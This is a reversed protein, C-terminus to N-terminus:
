KLEAAREVEKGDVTLREAGFDAIIETGDEYNTAFVNESLERYDTMELTQLHGLKGFILDYEAKMAGIVEDLAPYITRRKSWEARPHSAFLVKSMVDKWTYGHGELMTLGHMTLQWIPVQKDCMQSIPWEPHTNLANSGYWINTICDVPICSYLFGWEAGSSGFVERAVDLMRVVGKEHTSRPGGNKPHYNVELPNGVADLYIHGRCGMSQMKRLEGELRDYGLALGNQRYSIGGAWQGCVLPEGHIDIITTDYDFDPSAQYADIYNDHVSMHYGLLNGYAMLDRFQREGGVREDPPVRTPLLGDHGRSNWGVAETVIKDIGADHLKKLCEKGESFTMGVHFQGEFRTDGPKYDAPYPFLKHKQLGYFMKVMYANILYDAQPSEQARQKLTKKGLDEIMHRRMRKAAFVYPTQDEPITSYRIERLGFDVPDPWRHRLVFGLAVEGSGAGDTAAHCETDAACQVPIAVLGGDPSSVACFPLQPLLEWREQQGYIMFRDSLKPKDDPFCMAGALLPLLLHGGRGTSMMGPLLKINFVRYLAPDREYVEMPQLFVSLEGDIIRVWLGLSIGRWNDSVVVHAGGPVSEFVDVQYRELVEIRQEMKSYVELAMLPVEGWTKSRSLDELTLWLREHHESLTVSLKDDRFTIPETPM